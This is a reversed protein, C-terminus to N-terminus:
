IAFALDALLQTLALQDPSALYLGAPNPPPGLPSHYLAFFAPEAEGKAKPSIQWIQIIVNKNEIQRNLKKTEVLGYGQSSLWARWSPSTWLSCLEQEDLFHGDYHTIYLEYELSM